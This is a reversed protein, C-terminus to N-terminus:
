IYLLLNVEDILVVPNEAQTEKLCQILKGPM